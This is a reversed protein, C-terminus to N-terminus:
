NEYITGDDGLVEMALDTREYIHAGEEGGGRGRGEVVQRSGRVEGYALCEKLPVDASPRSLISLCLRMQYACRQHQNTPTLM